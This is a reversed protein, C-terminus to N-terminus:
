AKLMARVAEVLRDPEFPKNVFAQAGLEEFANRADYASLILIPARVGKERLERFVARGDKGPMRLDLVIADPPNEVALRIGEDGNNVVDTSFGSQRLVLATLTSLARDDDIILVRRTPFLEMGGWWLLVHSQWAAAPTAEVHRAEFL